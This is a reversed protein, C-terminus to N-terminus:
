REWKLVIPGGATGVHEQTEKAKGILQDILFKAANVDPDQLHVKWVSGEPFALVADLMKDDTVRQWAGNEDKILVAQTGVAKSLLAQTVPSLKAEVLTKFTLRCDAQALTVAATIAGRPSTISDKRGPPRGNPRGTRKTAM